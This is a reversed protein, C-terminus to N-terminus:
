GVSRLDCPIEKHLLVGNEDIYEHLGTVVYRREHQPIDEAGRQLFNHLVITAM